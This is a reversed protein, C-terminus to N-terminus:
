RGHEVGEDDDEGGDGAQHDAVADKMNIHYREGHHGDEDSNMSERVAKMAWKVVTSMQAQARWCGRSNMATSVTAPKIAM